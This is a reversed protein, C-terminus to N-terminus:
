LRGTSRRGKGHRNGRRNGQRHLAWEASARSFPRASEVERLLAPAAGPGDSHASLGSDDLLWRIRRKPAGHAERSPEIISIIL